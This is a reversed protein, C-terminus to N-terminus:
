VLSFYPLPSGSIDFSLFVVYVVKAIYVLYTAVDDRCIACYNAVLSVPYYFNYEIATRPFHIPLFPVHPCSLIMFYLFLAIHAVSTLFMFLDDPFCQFDDLPPMHTM